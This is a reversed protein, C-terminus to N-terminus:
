RKCLPCVSQNGSLYVQSGATRQQFMKEITNIPQGEERTCGSKLCAARDSEVCKNNFYTLVEVFEKIEDKNLQELLKIAIAVVSDKM